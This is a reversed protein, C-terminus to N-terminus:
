YETHTTQFIHGNQISHQTNKGTGDEFNIM